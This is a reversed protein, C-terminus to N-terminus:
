RMIKDVTKELHMGRSAKVLIFDEPKIINEYEYWFDQQTKFKYVFINNKNSKKLEKLSGLYIYESLEGICIILDIGKKIAYQGVEYHLNKAYNGLEFMDGLIAVKRSNARSLVDLSSKMSTPSANYTDNILTYKENKIIDMRMKGLKFSEIGKKIEETNLSLLHGILAGCLFNSIIHLFPVSTTVSIKKDFLNIDFSISEFHCESINSAYVDLNKNNLSYFFSNDKNLNVLMDDDANFIKIGNTSLFDFIECKAKLIGERSGLNEIHSFGINTITAIDPKAIESLNHIENFHNMGMELVLVETNENINFITLPLGIENNFNGETKTVNYKQSLISYIIDKTTTKGVSGTVAVVKIDFLTRYYKALKKLAEKTDRVRILIKDTLIDKESLCCISGKEFADKIFNHGDFNEGLIPIFLSNKEITRTDISVSTIFVNKINYDINITGDVAKVVEEISIKM